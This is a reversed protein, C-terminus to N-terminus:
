AGLQERLRGIAETQNWVEEIGAEFAVEGTAVNMLVMLGWGPGGGGHGVLRVPNGDNMTGFGYGPEDFGTNEYPVPVIGTDLGITAERWEILLGFSEAVNADGELFTGSYVWKPDYGPVADTPHEWELHGTIELPEFVLKQLSDFYSLGTAQEVAMRLLLYGINSYRFGENAHPLALGRELLEERSWANEHNSVAAGYEPLQSYDDLGSTHNLLSGITRNAYTSALHPVFDGISADLPLGLQLVAQALFPKSISYVPLDV